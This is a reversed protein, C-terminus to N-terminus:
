HSSVLNTLSIWQGTLTKLPGRLVASPCDPISRGLNNPFGSMIAPNAVGGSVDPGCDRSLLLTDVAGQELAARVMVEGYTAKPHTQMVERLFRDVLEREVDLDIKDM